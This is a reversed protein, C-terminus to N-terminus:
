MGTKKQFVNFYGHQLAPFEAKLGGFVAGMGLLRSDHVVQMKQFYRAPDYNLNRWQIMDPQNRRIFVKLATFEDERDTFGPMTLYNLAVFKKRRKAIKISRAVDEFVYGQPKYYQHYCAKRVSNLSVRISDLGAEFLAELKDPLSANTNMHITGRPTERRILAIAEQIVSFSLLPEGECGQGFSVIPQRVNRIHRLAVEAVEQATPVFGLRSQTPACSGKPQFSICGLCNANCRPSTPLPCEYRGLFFNVANPCFSVKACHMLHKILRNSTKGFARINKDLERRDVQGLDHVKRRDVHAAAVYFGEKYFAVAGYAYLPLLQAKKNEKYAATLFQTYGPPLFAAVAYVDEPTEYAGSSSNRVIPHRDPLFFLKSGEPLPIMDERRLLEVRDGAQGCAEYGPLDYIRGNKEAVLPIM